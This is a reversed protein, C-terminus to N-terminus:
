SNSLIHLILSSLLLFVDAIVSDPVHKRGHHQSKSRVNVRYAFQEAMGVHFSGLNERLNNVALYFGISSPLNRM